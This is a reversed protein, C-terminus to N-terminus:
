ENRGEENCTITLGLIAVGCLLYQWSIGHASYVLAYLITSFIIRLFIYM